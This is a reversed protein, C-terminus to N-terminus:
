TWILNFGGLKEVLDAIVSISDVDAKRNWEAILAALQDNEEPICFACGFNYVKQGTYEVLPSKAGSSVAEREEGDFNVKGLFCKGFKMKMARIIERNLDNYYDDGEKLGLIGGGAVYDREAKKALAIRIDGELVEKWRTGRLDLKGFNGFNCDYFGNRDSNEFWWFHDRYIFREDCCHMDNAQTRSYQIAQRDVQRNHDHDEVTYFLVTNKDGKDAHYNPRFCVVGLRSAVEDFFMQQDTYQWCDTRLERRYDFSRSAKM